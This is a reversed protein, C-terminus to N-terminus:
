IAPWMYAIMCSRGKTSSCFQPKSICGEIYLKTPSQNAKRWWIYNYYLNYWPRHACVSTCHTQNCIHLQSQLPNLWLFTAFLCWIPVQVAEMKSGFSLPVKETIDAGDDAQQKVNVIPTVLLWQSNTCWNGTFLCVKASSKAILTVNALPKSALPLLTNCAVISNTLM